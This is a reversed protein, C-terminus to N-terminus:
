VLEVALKYWDIDLRKTVAEGTKIGFAPVLPLADPFGTASFAVGDQDICKGNVYWYCRNRRADSRLGIKVFTSATLTQGATGDAAEKHVVATVSGTKYEADLGDPDATLVRFGVYENDVVAGTNDVLMNAAVGAPDMLGVFIGQDAVELPRVRCEFWMDIGALFLASCDTVSGGVGVYAEDNDTAGSTLRYLGGFGSIATGTIRAAPPSTDGVLLHLNATASGRIFDEFLLFGDRKGCILALEDCDRWISPSPKRGTDEDQTSFDVYQSSM